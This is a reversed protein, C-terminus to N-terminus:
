SLEPQTLNTQNEPKKEFNQQAGDAKTTAEAKAKESLPRHDGNTSNLGVDSPELFSM